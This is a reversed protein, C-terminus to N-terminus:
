IHRNTSHTHMDTHTYTAYSHHNFNHCFSVRYVWRMSCCLRYLQSISQAPHSPWDTSATRVQLIEWRQWIASRRCQPPKKAKISTLQSLNICHLLCKDHTLSQKYYMHNLECSYWAIKRSAWSFYASEAVIILSLHFYTSCCWKSKVSYTKYDTYQEGIKVHAPITALCTIELRGNLPQLGSVEISLQSNTAM